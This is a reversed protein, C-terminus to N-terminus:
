EKNEGGGKKKQTEETTLLQGTGAKSVRSERNAAKGGRSTKKGLNEALGQFITPARTKGDPVSGKM